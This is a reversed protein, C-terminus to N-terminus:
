SLLYVLLPYPSQLTKVSHFPQLTIGCHFICASLFRKFLRSQLFLKFTFARKLTMTLWGQFFEFVLLCQTGYGYIKRSKTSFTQFMELFFWHRGALKAVVPIAHPCNSHSLVTDVSPCVCPNWSLSLNFIELELHYWLSNLVHFDNCPAMMSYKVQISQICCFTSFLEDNPTSTCTLKGPLTNKM